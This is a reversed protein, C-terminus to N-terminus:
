LAYREYSGIEVREDTVVGRTYRATNGGYPPDSCTCPISEVNQQFNAPMIYTYQVRRTRFIMVSTGCAISPTNLVSVSSARPSFVSNSSQCSVCIQDTRIRFNRPSGYAFHSQRQFASLVPTRGHSGVAFSPIRVRIWRCRSELIRKVISFADSEIHEDGDVPRGTSPSRDAVTRLPKAVVLGCIPLRTLEARYPVFLFPRPFIITISKNLYVIEITKWLFKDIYKLKKLKKNVVGGTDITFFSYRGYEPV